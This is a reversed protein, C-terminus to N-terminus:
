NKIPFYRNQPQRLGRKQPTKFFYGKKIIKGMCNALRKKQRSKYARVKPECKGPIKSFTTKKSSKQCKKSVKKYVKPTWKKAPSTRFNESNCPLGLSIQAERPPPHLPNESYVLSPPPKPSKQCGKKQPKKLGGLGRPGRVGLGPPTMRKFFVM